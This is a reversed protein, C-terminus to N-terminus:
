THQNDNSGGISQSVVWKMFFQMLANKEGDDGVCEMLIEPEGPKKLLVLSTFGKITSAIKDMEQNLEKASM